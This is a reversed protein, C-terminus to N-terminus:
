FIIAYEYASRSQDPARVGAGGGGRSFEFKNLECDKPDACTILGRYFVLLYVIPM